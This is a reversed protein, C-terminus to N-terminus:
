QNPEQQRDTSRQIEIGSARLRALVARVTRPSIGLRAAIERDTAGALALTAIKERRTMGDGLRIPAARLGGRGRTHAKDRTPEGAAPLRM